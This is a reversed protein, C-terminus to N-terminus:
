EREGRRMRVEYDLDAWGLLPVGSAVIRQRIELLRKGLATRPETSTKQPKSFNVSIMNALWAAPSSYESADGAEIAFDDGLDLTIFYSSTIRMDLPRESLKPWALPRGGRAPLVAVIRARDHRSPDVTRGGYTHLPVHEGLTTTTTEESVFANTVSYLTSATM